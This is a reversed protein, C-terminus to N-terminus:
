EELKQRMATVRDDETIPAVDKTAEKPSEQPTDSTKTTPRITAARPAVFGINGLDRPTPLRFAGFLGTEIHQLEDVEPPNGGWVALLSSLRQTIRPSVNRERLWNTLTANLRIERFAPPPFEHTTFL